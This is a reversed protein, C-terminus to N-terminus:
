QNQIKLKRKEILELVLAVVLVVIGFLLAIDEAVAVVIVFLIISISVVVMGWRSLIDSRFMAGFTCAAEIIQKRYIIVAALMVLPLLFDVVGRVPFNVMAHAVMPAVLSRTRYFVYGYVLASFLTTLLVGITWPSLTLYYQSHSFTFFLATVLIFTPADFDEAFRTQVYGRYFLEEVVPVLLYSGVAMFIWFKFDWNLSYAIEQTVAKAGLPIFHDVATLLKFPLEAVAFLVIGTRLHHLIPQGAVTCGYDSLRRQRHWWGIGLAPLMIGGYQILLILALKKSMEILDANPNVQLIEIPNAAEIGLLKIFAYAIILGIMYVGCVEFIATLRRQWTSPQNRMTERSSIISM